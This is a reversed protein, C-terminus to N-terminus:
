KLDREEKALNNSILGTHSLHVETHIRIEAKKLGDDRWNQALRDRWIRPYKRYVRSGLAVSDTGESQMQEFSEEMTKKIAKGIVGSVMRVNNLDNLDLMDIDELVYCTAQSSIVFTVKGSQSISPVVNTKGELVYATLFQGSPLTVTMEHPTIQGGLWHIGEMKSEEFVGVMKDSKFQAYGLLKIQNPGNEKTEVTGMYVIIPDRERLSLAQAVNKMNNVTRGRGRIIERIAEWSFEDVPTKGKLLDSGKGKAVVIIGNLRNEPVRSFNDFLPRIGKKAMEEGIILVRRHSSSVRRSMRLSQMLTANRMTAAESSVITFPDGGGSKNGMKAPIPVEISILVRNNPAADVSTALTFAMDNLETRDWCGTLCGALLLLCALLPGKKSTKVM